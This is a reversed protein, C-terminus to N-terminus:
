LLPISTCNRVRRVLAKCAFMASSSKCVLKWALKWFDTLWSFCRTPSIDLRLAFLRGGRRGWPGVRCGKDCTTSSCEANLMRSIREESKDGRPQGLHTATFSAKYVLEAILLIRGRPRQLHRLALHFPLESHHHQGRNAPGRAAPNKKDQRAQDGVGVNTAEFKGLLEVLVLYPPTGEM